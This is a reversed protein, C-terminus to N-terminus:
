PPHSQEIRDVFGSTSATTKVQDAATRTTASTTREQGHSRVLYDAVTRVRALLPTQLKLRQGHASLYALSGLLEGGGSLPTVRPADPASHRRIMPDASKGAKPLCEDLVRAARRVAEGQDMGVDLGQSVADLLATAYQ